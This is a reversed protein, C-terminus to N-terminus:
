AGILCGSISTMGEGTTIIPVPLSEMLPQVRDADDFSYLAFATPNELRQASAVTFFYHALNAGIRVSQQKLFHEAMAIPTPWSLERCLRQAFDIYADVALSSTEAGVTGLERVAECLQFFRWGPHLDRWRLNEAIEHFVMHMPTALALDCVCVFSMVLDTPSASVTSVHKRFHEFAIRYDRTGADAIYSQLSSAARGQRELTAAKALELLHAQGEMIHWAGIPGYGPVVPVAVHGKKNTSSRSNMVEVQQLHLREDIWPAVDEINASLGRWLQSFLFEAILENSNQSGECLEIIRNLLMSNLVMSLPDKSISQLYTELNGGRQIHRRYAEQRRPWQSHAWSELPHPFLAEPHLARFHEFFGNTWRASCDDAQLQLYGYATGIQQYWHTMEHEYTMQAELLESSNAIHLWVADIGNSLLNLVEDSYNLKIELKRRRFEGAIRYDDLNDLFDNVSM